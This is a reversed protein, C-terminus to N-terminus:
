TGIAAAQAKLAAARAALAAGQSDLTATDPGFLDELPLLDPAAGVPGEPWTVQPYASCGALLAMLALKKM